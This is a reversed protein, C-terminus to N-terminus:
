VPVYLLRITICGREVGEGRYPGTMEQQTELLRSCAM